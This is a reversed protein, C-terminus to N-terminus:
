VVTEVVVPMFHPHHKGEEDIVELEHMRFLGGLTWNCPKGDQKKRPPGAKTFRGVCSFGLYISVDDFNKGAGADILDQACQITGCLPCVFQIKEKPVGQGKCIERFEKVTMTQM